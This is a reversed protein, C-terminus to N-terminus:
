KPDPLFPDRKWKEEPSFEASGYWCDHDPDWSATVEISRRRDRLVIMYEEDREVSAGIREAETRFAERDQRGSLLPAYPGALAERYLRYAEALEPRYKGLRGGCMPCWHWRIVTYKSVADQVGYGGASQFHAFIETFPGDKHDHMIQLFTFCTCRKSTGPCKDPDPM